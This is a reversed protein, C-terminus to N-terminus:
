EDLEIIHGDIFLLREIIDEDTETTELDEDSSLEAISPLVDQPIPAYHLIDNHIFLENQMDRAVEPYRELIRKLYIAFSTTQQSLIENHGTLRTNIRSQAKFKSKFSKALCIIIKLDKSM